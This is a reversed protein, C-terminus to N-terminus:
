VANTNIAGLVVNTLKNVIDLSNYESVAIGCCIGDPGCASPVEEIGTFEIGPGTISDVIHLPASRRDCCQCVLVDNLTWLVPLALVAVLSRADQMNGVLIWHHIVARRRYRYLARRWVHQN